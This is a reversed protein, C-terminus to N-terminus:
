IDRGEGFRTEIQAAPAAGARLPRFFKRIEAALAEPEELAPFHGGAPLTTWRRLDDYTREALARPVPIAGVPFQVYGTPVRIRKGRPITAGDHRRARYPWFSSNISGTLWYLMVNDLLTDKSFRREIDGGCDSWARFKEIIWAALGVPSDNLGYALTQPRTSQIAAYGSEERNWNAVQEHYLREEESIQQADEHRSLVLMTLHIGALRSAHSLGLRATIHAGWDGGHAAFRPYGLVDSMLTAFTAAIQAVCFRPQGPKCSLGYGPLSPAVVTFADDARGGFRVPDTLMPILYKFEIISGPWGHSLLLPAPAPGVGPEHIFHLDIGDIPVTFHRFRNLAAERARWDYVDRWYDTLERMYALSAGHHWDPDPPQDPWRVHQLRRQLDRLADDPFCVKMATPSMM